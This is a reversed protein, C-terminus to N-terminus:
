ADQATAERRLGGRDSGKALRCLHDLARSEQIALPGRCARWRHLSAGGRGRHGDVCTCLNLHTQRQVSRAKARNGQNRDFLPVSVDIGVGWANVDPFGIAQEQFQRTYGVTQTVEPYAKRQEVRLDAEAKALRLRLALVDAPREKAEGLREYTRDHLFRLLRAQADLTLDAVEDLFLTGGEAAEVKGIADSVARTFAGKRHGFLTSSMLDSVLMPCHVTVFPRDARKSHLRMWRALVTKGTGSEGRLLVVSDSAAVRRATQLFIYYSASHSEFFSEGETADLREQLESIRWQLLQAALVRRAAGRVQEPTFPKTM